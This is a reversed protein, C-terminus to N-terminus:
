DVKLLTRAVVVYNNYKITLDCPLIPIYRIYPEDRERELEGEEIFIQCKTLKKCLEQWWSM